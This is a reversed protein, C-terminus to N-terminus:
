EGKIRPDLLHWAELYKRYKCDSKAPSVTVRRDVEEIPFIYWAELEFIHFLVIDIDNKTYKRRRRKGDRMRLDAEFKTGSKATGKIQIRKPGGKTDVIM